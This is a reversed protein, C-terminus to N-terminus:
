GPIIGELNQICGPKSEELLSVLIKTQVEISSMLTGQSVFADTKIGVRSDPIKLAILPAHVQLQCALPIKTSKSNVRITLMYNFLDDSNLSLRQPKWTQLNTGHALFPSGAIVLTFARM